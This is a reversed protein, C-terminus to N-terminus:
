FQILYEPLMQDDCEVMLEDVGSKKIVNRSHYGPPLSQSTPLSAQQSAGAAVKCILVVNGYGLATSCVSTSYHGAGFAGRNGTCKGLHSIDFGNRMICCASCGSQTCPRGSFSSSCLQRTGHLMQRQNGLSDIAGAETIKGIRRCRRNFRGIMESSAHIKYIAHPSLAPGRAEDPSWNQTLQSKITNWEEESAPSCFAESSSPQERCGKSCFGGFDQSGVQRGCQPRVCPTRPGAIEASSVMGAKKSAVELVELLHQLTSGELDGPQKNNVNFCRRGTEQTNEEASHFAEHWTAMTHEWSEARSICEFGCTACTMPLFRHDKAGDGPRYFGEHGTAKTHVWSESRNRCPFGCSACLLQFGCGREGDKKHDHPRLHGAAQMRNSSGTRHASVM